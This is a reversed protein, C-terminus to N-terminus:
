DYNVFLNFISFAITAISIADVGTRFDEVPSTETTTITKTVVVSDSALSDTPVTETIVTTSTRTCSSLAILLLFLLKKM